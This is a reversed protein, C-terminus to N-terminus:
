TELIPILSRFNVNPFQIMSEVIDDIGKNWQNFEYYRQFIQFSNYDKTQVPFNTLKKELSCMLVDVFIEHDEFGLKKCLGIASPIDVMNLVGGDV